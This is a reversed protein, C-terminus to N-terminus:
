FNISVKLCYNNKSLNLTAYYGKPKKSREYYHKYIFYFITTVSATIGAILTLNDYFETDKKYKIVDDGNLADQYKKYSIQAKYISIGSVAASGIAFIESIYLPKKSIGQRPPIMEFAIDKLIPLLGEIEGKYDRYFSKEIRATEVDIYSIDVTYVKGVRGIKGVVIKQVNLIQGIQVACRTSTCGTLQFAQEKLIEEMKERSVVIFGNTKVLESRFRDTLPGAEQKSIGRGEFELVAIQPLNQAHSNEFICFITIFLLILKLILNNM